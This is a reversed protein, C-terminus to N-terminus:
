PDQAVEMARAHLSVLVKLELPYQPVSDQNPSLLLLLLILLPNKVSKGVVTVVASRPVQAIKTAKVHLSVLVWREPPYQPVNDQNPLFFLNKVSKGV